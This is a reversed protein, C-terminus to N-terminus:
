TLLKCAVQKVYMPALGNHAPCACFSQRGCCAMIHSPPYAPLSPSSFTICRDPEYVTSNDGPSVLGGPSEPFVKRNVQTPIAVKVPTTEAKQEALDSDFDPM